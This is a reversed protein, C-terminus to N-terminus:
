RGTDGEPFSRKSWSSANLLGEAAARAGLRIGAPEQDHFLCQLLACTYQCMNSCRFSFEGLSRQPLIHKEFRINVPDLRLAYNPKTATVNLDSLKLGVM